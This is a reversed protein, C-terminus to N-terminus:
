AKMNRIANMAADHHAKVASQIDTSPRVASRDGLGDGDLDGGPGIAMQATRQQVVHALEHASTRLADGVSKHGPSTTQFKDSGAAASKSAQGWHTAGPGYTRYEVDLGTTMERVQQGGPKGAPGKPEAATLAARGADSIQVTAAPVPDANGTADAARSAQASAASLSKAVDAVQAQLKGVSETGSTPGIKM